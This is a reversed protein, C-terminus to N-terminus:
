LSPNVEASPAQSRRELPTRRRPQLERHMRMPFAGLFRDTGRDAERPQRFVLTQPSTKFVRTIEDRILGRDRGPPLCLDHRERLRNEQVVEETVEQRDVQAVVGPMPPVREPGQE